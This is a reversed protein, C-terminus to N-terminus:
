KKIKIRTYLTLQVEKTSCFEDTGDGDIDKFFYAMYRLEDPDTEAKTKNILYKYAADINDFSSQDTLQSEASADSGYSGDGKIESQSAASPSGKGDASVDKGQGTCATM